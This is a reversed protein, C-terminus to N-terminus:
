TQNNHLAPMETKQRRKIEPRSKLIASNIDITVVGNLRPLGFERLNVEKFNNQAAEISIINYLV